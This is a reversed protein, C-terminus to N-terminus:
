RPPWNPTAPASDPRTKLRGTRIFPRSGDLDYHKELLSRLEPSSEFDSMRTENILTVIDDMGLPEGRKIRSRARRVYTFAHDIQRRRELLGAEQLELVCALDVASDKTLETIQALSPGLRKLAIVQHLRAVEEPGYVRLARITLGLQRATATATGYISPPKSM